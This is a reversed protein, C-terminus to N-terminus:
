GKCYKRHMFMGRAFVKGCKDCTPELTEKVQNQEQISDVKKFDPERAIAELTGRDSVTVPNGNCFVYGRFERYKGGTYIFQQNM